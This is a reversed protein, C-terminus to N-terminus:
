GQYGDAHTRGFFGNRLKSQYVSERDVNVSKPADFGLRIRDGRIEVVTIKIDHGIRAMEDRHFTLVLM